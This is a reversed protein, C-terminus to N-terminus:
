ELKQALNVFVLEKNRVESVLQQEKKLDELVLRVNKDPFYSHRLRDQRLVEPEQQQEKKKVELVL